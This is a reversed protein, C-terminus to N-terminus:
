GEFAPPVISPINLIPPKIIIQGKLRLFDQGKSAGGTEELAMGKNFTIWDLNLWSRLYQMFKSSSFLPIKM